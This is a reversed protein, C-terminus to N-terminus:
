CCFYIGQREAAHTYKPFFFKLSAERTRALIAGYPKAQTMPEFTRVAELAQDLIAM